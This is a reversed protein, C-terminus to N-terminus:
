PMLQSFSSLCLFSYLVGHTFFLDVVGHIFFLDVVGHILYSVGWVLGLGCRIYFLIDVVDSM